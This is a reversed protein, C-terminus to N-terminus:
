QTFASAAVGSLRPKIARHTQNGPGLHNFSLISEWLNNESSWVYVIVHPYQGGSAGDLFLFTFILFVVVFCFL